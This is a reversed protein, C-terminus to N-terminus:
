REEEAEHAVLHQTELPPPLGEGKAQRLPGITASPLRIRTTDPLTPAARVFGPRTLVALHYPGPSRNPSSYALFRRKRGEFLLRSSEPPYPGTATRVSCGDPHSPVEPLNFGGFRLGRPFDAAYRHRHRQSM